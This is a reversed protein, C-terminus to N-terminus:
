QGIAMNGECHLREGNKADLGAAVFGCGRDHAKFIRPWADQRIDDEALDRLV